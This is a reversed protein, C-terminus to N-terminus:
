IGALRLSGRHRHRNCLRRLARAAQSDPPGEECPVRHRDRAGGGALRPLAAPITRAACTSCSRPTCAAAAGPSAFCVQTCCVLRRQGAMCSRPQGWLSAGMSRVEQGDPPLVLTFTTDFPGERDAWLRLAVRPPQGAAGGEVSVSLNGATLGRVEPQPLPLLAAPGAAAAAADEAAGLYLLDTIFIGGQLVFGFKVELRPPLAAAPTPRPSPAREDAFRVSGAASTLGPPQLAVWAHRSGCAFCTAGAPRWRCSQEALESSCTRGHRTCAEGKSGGENMPRPVCELGPPQM